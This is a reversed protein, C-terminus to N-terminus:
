ALAERAKTMVEDVSIEKMCYLDKRFCPSSGTTSCPKCWLEKSLYSSKKGHPAFGFLPDTPGFITVVPVGHAEAIHNMGSDNGISLEARALIQMSEKLSTKGQLNLLKPSDIVQFAECFKDDPGALVVLHYDTTALLKKALEVFYEVPWRKPTFSASPALVIYKGPIPYVDPAPLSTMEEHPGKRYDRTERVGRSDEFIDQIDTIIREVQPELGFFKKSFMRRVTVSKIKTLFFREWRRKDVTLQPTTWFSSRLRFSRMTAHLDLILDYPGQSKVNAIFNKWEDKRRDFGIVHNIGPHGDLLSVFERSTVFTVVLEKGFLSRLWNVTATQLVVDGMSSFRIMLIHM